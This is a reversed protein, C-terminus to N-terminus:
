ELVRRVAPSSALAERLPESKPMSDILGKVITRAKSRHQKARAADGTVRFCESAGMEIRWEVM